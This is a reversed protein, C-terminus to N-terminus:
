KNTYMLKILNQNSALETMLTDIYRSKAHAFSNEFEPFDFKKINLLNKYFLLNSNFKSFEAAQLSEEDSLLTSPSYFKQLFYFLSTLDDKISELLIRKYSVEIKKGIVLKISKTARKLSVSDTAIESTKFVSLRKCCSSGM